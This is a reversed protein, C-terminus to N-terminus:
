AEGGRAGIRRRQGGHSNPFATSMLRRRTYIVSLWCAIANDVTDEGERRGTVMGDETEGTWEESGLGRGVRPYGVLIVNGWGAALPIQRPLEHDM